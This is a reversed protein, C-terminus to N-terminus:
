ASLLFVKVSSAEAQAFKSLVGLVGQKELTGATEKFEPTMENKHLLAQVMQSGPVQVKVQM